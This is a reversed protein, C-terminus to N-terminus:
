KIAVFKGKEILFLHLPHEFESSANVSVPGLPSQWNKIAKIADLLEKRSTIKQKEILDIILAV